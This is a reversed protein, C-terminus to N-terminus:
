KKLNKADTKRLKSMPTPSSSSPTEVRPKIAPEPAKEDQLPSDVRKEKETLPTGKNQRDSEELQELDLHQLAGVIPLDGDYESIRTIEAELQQVRNRATIMEEMFHILGAQMFRMCLQVYGLQKGKSERVESPPVPINKVQQVQSMQQFTDIGHVMEEATSFLQGINEEQSKLMGRATNLQDAVNGASESTRLAAATVGQFGSFRGAYRGELGSRQSNAM